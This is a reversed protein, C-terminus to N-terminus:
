TLRAILFEVSREILPAHDVGVFLHGTGPVLDLTVDAGQAKLAETFVVSQRQPVIPDEAGHMVLMPAAPASTVYSLPSAANAADPHDQLTGGILLSEPSGPADHPRDYDLESQEDMRLFDTPPYWAVAASVESSQGTVGVEGELEPGGGLALFASLYGGASEGWSAIADPRVGLESGYRRLWRVASKVDHLCAPFPAELSFRYEVSAVAVGHALMADWAPGSLASRRRTGYLFGGGHLWLVVPAPTTAPVMLDMRLPRYGIQNAFVIDRYTRTGSPDQLPAELMRPTDPEPAVLQPVPVDTRITSM